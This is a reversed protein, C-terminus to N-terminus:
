DDGPQSQAPEIGGPEGPRTLFESVQRLVADAWIDNHGLGPSEVYTARPGFREALDRGHAVPVITDRAGHVILVPCTIADVHDESRLSDAALFGIPLGFGHHQFLSSMSRFPSILVLGAPPTGARCLDAALRVAVATGLSQGVIRLGAPATGHRTELRRVTAMADAHLGSETPAGPSGDYGRYAVTIFCGGHTILHCITANNTIPSANGGFFITTGPTPPLGEAAAAPTGADTLRAIAVLDGGADDAGPIAIMEAGIGRATAAIVDPPTQTPHYIFSRSFAFVAGGLAVVVLPYIVLRRRWRRAPASRKPAPSTARTPASATTTADAPM